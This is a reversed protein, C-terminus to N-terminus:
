PSRLIGQPADKTLIHLEVAHKSQLTMVQSFTNPSERTM